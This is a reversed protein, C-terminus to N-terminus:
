KVVRFLLYMIRRIVVIVVITVIFAIDVMIRKQMVTKAKCTAAMIIIFDEIAIIIM